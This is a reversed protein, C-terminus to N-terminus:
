GVGWIDELYRNETRLQTLWHEAEDASYGARSAHIQTLAARVGPALTRANGCVYITAGSDILETIEDQHALM